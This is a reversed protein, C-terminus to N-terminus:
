PLKSAGEVVARQEATLRKLEDLRQLKDLEMLRGAWRRTAEVHGLDREAEFVRWPFSLGYPDMAAAKTWAEVARNRLEPQKLVEARTTWVNGLLGFAGASPSQSQREAAAVAQDIARGAGSLDGLRALASGQMLRMRCFADVTPLHHPALAMAGALTDAAGDCSRAALQDMSRLFSAEDTAPPVGLLRGLDSAVAQVSDKPEAHGHRLDDWRSTIEALPQVGAAADILAREWRVTPVGAMVAWVGALILLLVGGLRGGGRPAGPEAGSAGLMVMVLCASGGWVPTVEIQGHVAMVLAGLAAVWRWGAAVRALSLVGTGLGLWGLLGVLRTIAADPTGASREFWAGAIVAIAALLAVAWHEGRTPAAPGPSEHEAEVVIRKGLGFVWGIWMAVWALGLTGLTAAFDFMVSHPSQVEEPSIPPKALMYADKFGAPGVGLLPRAEFIRTAGEMYFWRFLLSLEGMRTGVLGRMVVAAIASLVLAVALMGGARASLRWLQERRAQRALVMRVALLGVGLAAVTVGGKAGETWLSRMFPMVGRWPMLFARASGALMLATFSSLAGLSLVGAWGDPLPKDRDRTQRWALLSWGTFVVLGAAAFSAYVNALGFWGTAEPQMLRREFNRASISDKLWGQAALFADPDARYAAVTQRHEVAVQLVGKAALMMVLGMAAAITVRRAREDRCVHMAALGAAMAAIWTSGTRADELSGGDLVLGHLSAGIAGILMLVTWVLSVRLGAMAEGILAAGAAAVISVDLGMSWAPTLGTLPLVLRTPDSDWYPLPEVSVMARVFTGALVVGLGGWRLLDARGSRAAAQAM